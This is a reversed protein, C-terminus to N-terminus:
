EEELVEVMRNLMVESSFEKVIRDRCRQSLTNKEEEIKALMKIMGDKLAVPNRAPVVEGTDDVILASDGADTVVCPVGCAMAEGVVNPFGESSSSLALIDLGNYVTQMDQRDGTWTLVNDLNLNRAQERLVKEYSTSGGGVCIFRVDKREQVLLAIAHLFTKHDKVPSLRAILGILKEREKIKWEQRFQERYKRIHRFQEVDIGNPIVSLKSRPFGRRVAADLGAFSNCIIRDAFRALRTELLYTLRGQWDDNRLNSKSGRIGWIIRTSPAWPKVLISWDNALSMYSYLVKPHERWLLSILKFYHIPVNWRNKKGLNVIPVKVKKLDAELEWGGYFVAVKVPYGLRKLGGALTVLQRQAGGTILRPILFLISTKM